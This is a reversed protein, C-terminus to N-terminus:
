HELDEIGNASYYTLIGKRQNPVNKERTLLTIAILSITTIAFLVVESM